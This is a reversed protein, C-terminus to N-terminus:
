VKEKCIDNYIFTKWLLLFCDKLKKGCKVAFVKGIDSNDLAFNWVEDHLEVFSNLENEYFDEIISLLCPCRYVKQPFFNSHKERNLYM